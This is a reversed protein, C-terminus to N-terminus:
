LSTAKAYPEASPPRRVTLQRKGTPDGSRRCPSGPPRNRARGCVQVRVEALGEREVGVGAAALGPARDRPGGGQVLLAAPGTSLQAAILIRLALEDREIGEPMEVGEATQERLREEVILLAHEPIV